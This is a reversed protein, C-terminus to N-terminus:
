LACRGSVGLRLVLVWGFSRGHVYAVGQNMCNGAIIRIFACLAPVVAVCQANIEGANIIDAGVDFVTRVRTCGNNSSERASQGVSAKPRTVQGRVSALVGQATRNAVGRSGGAVWLM